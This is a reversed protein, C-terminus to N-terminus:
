GHAGSTEIFGPRIMNVPHGEHWQRQLGQNYTNFVKRRLMLSALTATLACVTNIASIHFFSVQIHTRDYRTVLHETLSRIWLNVNLAKATTTLSPKLDATRLMQDGVKKVLIELGGWEQQDRQIGEKARRCGYGYGRCSYVVAARGEAALTCDNRRVGSLTFVACWRKDWAKTGGTVLRAKGKFEREQVPFPYTV